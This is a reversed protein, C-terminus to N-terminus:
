SSEGPVGFISGDHLGTLWVEATQRPPRTERTEHLTVTGCRLDALVRADGHEADTDGGTRM